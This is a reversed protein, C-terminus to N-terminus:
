VQMGWYTKITHHKILCLIDKRRPVQNLLLVVKGKKINM